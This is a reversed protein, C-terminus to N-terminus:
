ALSSCRVGDEDRQDLTKRAACRGEHHGFIRMTNVGNM